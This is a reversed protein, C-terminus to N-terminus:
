RKTYLIVDIKTIIGVPKGKVVVLVADVGEAILKFASEISEDIEITPFPPELIEQVSQTFVITQESSMLQRIVTREYVSGVSMNEKIVPLQSVAHRKMLHVARRVKDDPSVWVLLPLKSTRRKWNILDRIRDHIEREKEIIALIRRLTTLSPNVQGLEIRAILSQSIGVHLALEAQTLGAKRRLEQLEENSPIKFESM